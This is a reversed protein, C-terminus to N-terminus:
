GPRYHVSRPGPGGSDSPQCRSPLSAVHFAIGEGEAPTVRFTETGDSEWEWGKSEKYSRTRVQVRDSAQGSRLLHNEAEAVLRRGQRDIDNIQYM